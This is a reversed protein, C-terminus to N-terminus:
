SKAVSLRNEVGKVGEITSAIQEAKKAAEPSDASGTLTVRGEKTDVDIKLVKLEPEALIGAKVKATIAADDLAGGARAMQDSASSPASSTPPPPSASGPSPPTAGSPPKPADPTSPRDCAAVSLLSLTGLMLLGSKLKRGKM